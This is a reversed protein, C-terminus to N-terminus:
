ERVLVVTPVPDGAQVEGIVAPRYGRLSITAKSVSGPIGETRWWGDPGTWTVGFRPLVVRAGGLPRGEEDEVRGRVPLLVGTFALVRGTADAGPQLFVAEFKTPQFGEATAHIGVNKGGPPVKGRLEFRGERDTFGPPGFGLVRAGPVPAGDVGVVRGSVVVEGEKSARADPGLLLEVEWAGTAPKWPIQGHLPHVVAWPGAGDVPMVSVERDQVGRFEFSGDDGTEDFAKREIKGSRSSWLYTAVLELGAVPRGSGAEVARGRLTEAPPAELTVREDSDGPWAPRDIRAFGRDGGDFVVALPCAEAAEVEEFAFRGKADTYMAQVAEAPRGRPRTEVTVKVDRAPTIGDPLLVEGRLFKLTAPEMRVVMEEGPVEVRHKLFPKMGKALVALNAFGPSAEAVSFRGDERSEATGLVALGAGQEVLLFVQAGKVPVWEGGELRLVTGVVPTPATLRLVIGEADVLFSARAVRAPTWGEKEATLSAIPTPAMEFRFAGDERTRYILPPGAFGIRNSLVDALSGELWPGPGEGDFFSVEAGAVPQDDPGLVRGAVVVKQEKARVPPPRVAESEPVPLPRPSTETMKSVPPEISVPKAEPVIPEEGEVVPSETTTRLLLAVLVVAAIGAAIATRRRM